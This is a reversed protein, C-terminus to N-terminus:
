HIRQPALVRLAIWGFGILALLVPLFFIAEDFDHPLGFVALALVLAVISRIPYAVYFVRAQSIVRTSPLAALYSAHVSPCHSRDLYLSSPLLSQARAAFVAHQSAAPYITL